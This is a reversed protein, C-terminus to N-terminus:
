KIYRQRSAATQMRVALCFEQGVYVVLAILSICM